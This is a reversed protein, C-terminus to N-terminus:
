RGYADCEIMMHKLGDKIERRCMMCHNKMEQAIRKAYVLVNTLLVAEMRIQMLSIPKHVKRSIKWKRWWKGSGLDLHANAGPIRYVKRSTALKAKVKEKIEKVMMGPGIGAKRAWTESNSSWPAKGRRRRTRIPARWLKGVMCTSRRLRNNLDTRATAACVEVPDLGLEKLLRSRSCSARCAIATLASNLIKRIGTCRGNHQGFIEQGYAVRPMLVGKVAMRKYMMAMEPNKLLGQM